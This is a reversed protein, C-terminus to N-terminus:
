PEPQSDDHMFYEFFVQWTFNRETSTATTCVRAGPNRHQSSCLPNHNLPQMVAQLAEGNRIVLIPTIAVKSTTANLPLNYEGATVSSTASIVRSFYVDSNTSTAVTSSGIVFGRMLLIPVNGTTPPAEYDPIPTQSTASTSSAIYLVYPSSTSTTNTPDLIFNASRVYVTKGTNNVWGLRHSTSNGDNDIVTSTSNLRVRGFAVNNSGVENYNTIGGLKAIESRVIDAVNGAPAPKIERNIMVVGFVVVLVALATIVINKTNM